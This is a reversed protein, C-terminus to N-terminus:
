NKEPHHRADQDARDERGVASMGPAALAEEDEELAAGAVAEVGHDGVAVAGIGGEPRRDRDRGRPGAAMGGGGVRLAKEAEGGGGVGGGRNKHTKKRGGGARSGRTGSHFSPMRAITWATPLGSPVRDWKSACSKMSLAVGPM